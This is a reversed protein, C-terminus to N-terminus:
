TSLILTLLMTAISDVIRADEEECSLRRRRRKFEFSVAECLELYRRDIWDM